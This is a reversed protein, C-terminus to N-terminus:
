AFLASFWRTEPYLLLAAGAIALGYPVGSEKAHLRVLWAPSYQGAHPLARYALIILSLAGGMLGVTLLFQLLSDYGLWLACAALFKADGGGAWGRLFCVFGIVLVALASAVHVGIVDLPLGALPAVVLFSGVLALSIKNPITMTFLDFAAAFALAVPFVLLLPYELM